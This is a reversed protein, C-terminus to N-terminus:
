LKVNLDKLLEDKVKLKDSWQELDKTYQDLSGLDGVKETIAESFKGKLKEAQQKVKQGIAETFLKDLSSKIKFQPDDLSGTVRLDINLQEQQSLSAALTKQWGSLNEPASIKPQSLVMSLSLDVKELTLVGALKSNLQGSSVVWRGLDTQMLDFDTVEWGEIKSDLKTLMQQESKWDSSISFNAIGKGSVDLNLTAPKGVLWPFYGLNTGDGSLSWSKDKGSLNVKKILVDPFIQNDKFQVKLGQKTSYAPADQSSSPDSKMSGMYDVLKEIWPTFEPGLFKDSLGAIGNGLGMDGMVANLDDNPGARVSAIQQKLKEKDLKYQNNLQEINKKEQSIDKNLKKWDKRDALLNMKNEKARDSLRKFEDELKKVRQKSEDSQLEKKWYAQMKQQSSELEKMRKLTILDAKEIMSKIDKETLEPLEISAMEKSLQEAATGGPIAGSTTRDTGMQIGTLNLEDIQIKKWLLADADVAFKILSVELMNKMPQDPDAAQLREIEVGAPFLSLTLKDIEVKAGLSETAATEIGGKIVMPAVLYWCAILLVALTFFAIVGWWRIIKM